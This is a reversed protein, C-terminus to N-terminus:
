REITVHAVEAVLVSLLHVVFCVLLAIGVMCRKSLMCYNTSFVFESRM